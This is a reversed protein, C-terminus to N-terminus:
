LGSKRQSDSYFGDPLLMAVSNTDLFNIASGRIALSYYIVNDLDALFVHLNKGESSTFIVHKKIRIYSDPLTKTINEVDSFLPNIDYITLISVSTIFM